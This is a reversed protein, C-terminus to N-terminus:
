SFVHGYIVMICLQVDFIGLLLPDLLGTRHINRTPLPALLNSGTPLLLFCFQGAISQLSAPSVQAGLPCHHSTHLSSTLLPSLSTHTSFSFHVRQVIAHRHSGKLPSKRLPGPPERIQSCIVLQCTGEHPKTPLLCSTIHLSM